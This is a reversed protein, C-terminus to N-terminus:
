KREAMILKESAKVERLKKKNGEQSRREERKKKYILKERREREKHIEKREM